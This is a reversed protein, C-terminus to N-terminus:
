REKKEGIQKSKKVSMEGKETQRGRREKGTKKM